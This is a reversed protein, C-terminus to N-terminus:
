VRIEVIKMNTIEILGGDTVGYDINDIDFRCPKDFEGEWTLLDTPQPYLQANGMTVAALNTGIITFTTPSLVTINFVLNNITNGTNLGTLYIKQGTTFGHSTSTTVLPNTGAAISTIVINYVPVFTIVGSTFNCNYNITPVLLSSNKYVKFAANDRPKKIQKRNLLAGAIYNKSLQYTPYGTGFGSELVGSAVSVKFDQFDKFRFGYGRGALANFFDITESIAFRNTITRLGSNIMYIARQQSWNINRQEFGSNLQVVTTNHQAGGTAWFAMDDPFRPTEIFTTM